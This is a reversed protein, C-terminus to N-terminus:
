ISYGAISLETRNKFSHASFQLVMTIPQGRDRLRQLEVITIDKNGSADGKTASLTARSVTESAAATQPTQTPPASPRTSRLESLIHVTSDILFHNCLSVRKQGAVLKRLEEASLRDLDSGDSSSASFKRHGKKWAAAHVSGCSNMQSLYAHSAACVKTINRVLNMSNATFKVKTSQDNDFDHGSLTRTPRATVNSIVYSEVESDTPCSTSVLMSCTTSRSVVSHMMKRFPVSTAM